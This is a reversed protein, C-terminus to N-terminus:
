YIIYGLCEVEDKVIYGIAYPYVEGNVGILGAEDYFM